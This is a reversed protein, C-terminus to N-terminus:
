VTLVLGEWAAIVRLSGGSASVLRRCEQVIADVADDTRDPHHHFLVLMGADCEMAFRTAELASSHGWGRHSLLEGDTYMADHLLIPVGHLALTLGRRWAIVEADTSAYDLENDPAFAIAPGMADDLRFIAAGGPHRAPFRHMLGADGLEVPTGNTFGRVSVRDTLAPLAPFLPPSLLTDLLARTTTADADGGTVFLDRDVDFLPAFHPLGMVHDSHRHTLFLHAPPRAGEQGSARLQQGLARLGTGADLVILDDGGTRVEVCTTHGGYRITRPGPSPVTGRAGWCRLRFRAQREGGEVGHSPRSM